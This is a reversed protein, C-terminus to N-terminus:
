IAGALGNSKEEKKKEKERGRLERGGPDTFTFCLV